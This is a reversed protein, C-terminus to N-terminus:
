YSLYRNAKALDKGEKEKPYKRTRSIVVLLIAIPSDICEIRILLGNIHFKVDGKIM